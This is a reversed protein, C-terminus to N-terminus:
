GCDCNMWTFKIFDFEDQEMEIGDDSCVFWRVQVWSLFHGMAKSKEFLLSNKLKQFM